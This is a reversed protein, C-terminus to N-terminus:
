KVKVKIYSTTFRNKHSSFLEVEDVNSSKVRLYTVIAFRNKEGSFLEVEDVSLLLDSSKFAVEEERMVWM